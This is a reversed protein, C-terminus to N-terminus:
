MREGGLCATVASDSQEREAERSKAKERRGRNQKRRGWGGASTFRGAEVSIVGGAGQLNFNPVQVVCLSTSTGLSSKSM